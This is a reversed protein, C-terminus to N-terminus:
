HKCDCHHIRKTEMNFLSLQQGWVCGTDLAIVDSRNARGMLSAWHGVILTHGASKRGPVDFWPLFGPPADEPGEKSAFELQGEPTCFRMRTMYNIVVRWREVGRLSESWRDPQDGYMNRLLQLHDPGRLVAGVEAALRKADALSWQPALGAHVLTYDDDPSSYLLPQNQVWGLLEACDPADLIERLTDGRKLPRIGNAVALLHLDHNGLVVRARDGLGALFRLCALSEPGRNVIDGVSWLEDREPDFRVQDLLKRLPAFCGQLDGVAYRTM